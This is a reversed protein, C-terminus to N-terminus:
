DFFYLLCTIASTIIRFNEINEKRAEKENEIQIKM